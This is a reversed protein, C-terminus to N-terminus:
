FLLLKKNPTALLILCQTRTNETSITFNGARSKISYLFAMLSVYRHFLPVTGNIPTHVSCNWGRGTQLCNFSSEHWAAARMISISPPLRQSIPKPHLTNLAFIFGDLIDCPTESVIIFHTSVYVVNRLNKCKKVATADLDSSVHILNASYCLIIFVEHQIHLYSACKPLINFQLTSSICNINM